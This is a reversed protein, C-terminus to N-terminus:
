RDLTVASLTEGPGAFTFTAGPCVLHVGGRRRDDHCGWTRVDDPRTKPTLVAERLCVPGNAAVDLTGGAHAGGADAWGGEGAYSRCAVPPAPAKLVRLTPPQRGGDGGSLVLLGDCRIVNGGENVAMPGCTGLAAAFVRPDRRSEVIRRGAVVCAPLPAEIETVTGDPDMRLRVAAEKALFWGPLADPQVAKHTKEGLRFGAYAAGPELDPCDRRTKADAAGSFLLVLLVLHRM